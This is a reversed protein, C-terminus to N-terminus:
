CIGVPALAADFIQEVQGVGQSSLQVYYDFLREEAARAFVPSALLAAADKCHASAVVAVGGRM